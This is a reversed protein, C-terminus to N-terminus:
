MMTSPRVIDSRNLKRTVINNDYVPNNCQGQVKSSLGYVKPNDQCGDSNNFFQVPYQLAFGYGRGPNRMGFLTDAGNGGLGSQINKYLPNSSLQPRLSNENQIIQISSYCGPATLTNLAGYGSPRGFQDFATAVPCVNLSNVFTRAGQSFEAISGVGGIKNQNLFSSIASVM